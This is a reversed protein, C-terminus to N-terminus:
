ASNLVLELREPPMVPAPTGMGQLAFRAFSELLGGAGLAILLAGVWRLPESDLFAPAMRWDSIWWPVLAAVTGPVVLFAVTGLISSLRRNMEGQWTAEHWAGAGSHDNANTWPFVSFNRM